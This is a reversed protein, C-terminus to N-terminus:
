DISSVSWTDCSHWLGWLYPRVKQYVSLKDNKKCQSRHGNRIWDYKQCKKSCYYVLKCKSCKKMGDSRKLGCCNCVDFIYDRNIDDYEKNNLHQKIKRIRKVKNLHKRALKSKGMMRLLIGYHYHTLSDNIKEKLTIQYFYKAMKYDCLQYHLYM